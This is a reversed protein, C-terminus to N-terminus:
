YRFPRKVPGDNTAASDLAPTASHTVKRISGNFFQLDGPGQQRAM